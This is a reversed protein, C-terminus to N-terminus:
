LLMKFCESTTGADTMVLNNSESEDPRWASNSPVM